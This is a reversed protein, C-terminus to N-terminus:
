RWEVRMTTEVSFPDDGRQAALVGAGEPSGTYLPAGPSVWRHWAAAFADVTERRVGLVSPVAHWVVTAPVPRRWLMRWALSRAQAKTEPPTIVYRPIVYRPAGLPALTEDLSDAFVQSVQEDVGDLWIRYSGTATPAVRVRSAGRDTVGIGVLGDAVAAAFSTLAGTRDADDGPEGTLWQRIALSRRALLRVSGDGTPTLAGAVARGPALAGLPMGITRAARVRIEATPQDEYPTGVQWLGRTRDRDRADAIADANIRLRDESVPPAFPSLEPHVHAVGDTILGDDTVAYFGAHKRVLRQYDRDGLPHGDAVCVVTWTHAVKDPDRPDTRLARGRTQTVAIPTTATTLDVLVNVSRADWGEGLLARTGVLVQGHGEEFWRTLLPVWHKADWRGEIEAIGDREVAQVELRTGQTRLWAVLDPALMPDCAVVRATVLVPGLARTLPDAVLRRLVGRASGEEPAIVGVLGEPVQASAREFDCLVLLRLRDGRTQSELDAIEVAALAKAASRAVVRDVPSTARVLGRRTLRLGIGPLAARLRELVEVDRPDESTLLAGRVFDDILLSWDDGDLPARHQERQRAGDPLDLLGAHVARLVADALDPLDRAVQAWPLAPVDGSARRTSARRVFREDLWDLFGVSTLGPTMLDTRLQAFRLATEGLYRAEAATPETFAVLERFPALHGDRVFAPITAVYEVGGFLREVLVAEDTSLTEPPTATLALVRARPLRDLVEALLEGWVDLLHHCEDLVLTVPGLAVLREVFAAANPHLRDLHGVPTAPQDAEDPEPDEDDGTFVALAQYTLVTVRASLDRTDSAALGLREAQAVWQSQVATNPVFVVAPDAHSSIAELGVRTKGGGPPLVVWAAHRGAGWAAATAALAEAQQRRLPPRDSSVTM